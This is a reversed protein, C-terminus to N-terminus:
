KKFRAGCHPCEKMTTGRYYRRYDGSKYYEIVFEPDEKAEKCCYKIKTM